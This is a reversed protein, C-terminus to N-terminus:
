EWHTGRFYYKRNLRYGFHSQAEDFVRDSDTSNKIKHWGFRFVLYALGIGIVASLIAFLATGYDAITSTILNTIATTTM